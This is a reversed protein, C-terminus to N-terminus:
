WMYGLALQLSTTDVKYDEEFDDFEFDVSQILYEISAIFGSNAKIDLGIGYYNGFGFADDSTSGGYGYGDDDFEYTAEAVAAAMGIRGSIAVPSNGLPISGKVGIQTTQQDWKFTDTGYYPDSYTDEGEGQFQETVDLSFYKNFAYGFRLGFGTSADYTDGHEDEYENSSLIGQVYFGKDDKIVESQATEESQATMATLTMATMALLKKM